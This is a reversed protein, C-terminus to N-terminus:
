KNEPQSRITISAPEITEFYTKWARLGKVWTSKVREIECNWVDLDVDCPITGGHLIVFDEPRPIKSTLERIDVIFTAPISHVATRPDQSAAAECLKVVCECGSIKGQDYLELCQQTSPM